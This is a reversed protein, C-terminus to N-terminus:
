DLRSSGPKISGRGGAPANTTAQLHTSWGGAVAPLMIEHQGMAFVFRPGPLCGPAEARIVTNIPRGQKASWLSASAVAGWRNYFAAQSGLGCGTQWCCIAVESRLTACCRLSGQWAITREDILSQGSSRRLVGQLFWSQYRRASQQM